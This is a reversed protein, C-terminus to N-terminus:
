DPAPTSSNSNRRLQEMMFTMAGCYSKVAEGWRSAKAAASGKGNLANFADWDVSWHEQRAAEELEGVTQVLRDVFEQTAVASATRHPGKGFRNALERPGAGSQFAHWFAVLAAAGAAVVSALAGIWHGTVALLITLLGLATTAALGVPKRLSGQGPRRVPASVTWSSSNEGILRPSNVRAVVITINDPGGRLNALDVLARVAEQPPLQRLIAAMEDDEIQGSLGDSCLLFTDGVQLPFPGELDVQVEASPGLSRTIINKPVSVALDDDGVGGAQMEWALSHDFTLQEYRDDRLRYLRSDGVHAAVAGQPVIVLSTLTTGMGSFEPQAQGRGYIAENSKKVAAELAMPPPQDQLKQYALPITDAAIKSALEGAAHAGMGDAVIFLHGRNKYSPADSALIVAMSDQNNSRRLGIDSISAVEVGSDWQNAV